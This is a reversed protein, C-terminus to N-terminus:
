AAEKTAELYAQELKAREHPELEQQGTEEDACFKLWGRVDKNDISEPMPKMFREVIQLAWFGNATRSWRYEIRSRVPNKEKGALGSGARAM